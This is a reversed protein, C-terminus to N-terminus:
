FGVSFALGVREYWVWLLSVAYRRGAFNLMLHTRDGDYMPRFSFRESLEVEVGLPFNFEDDWESYNLSVYGSVPWSPHRKAATLFYSQTGKPSGIRDSSTGM